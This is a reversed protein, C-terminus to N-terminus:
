SNAREAIAQVRVSCSRLAAAHADSYNSIYAARERLEQAIALLELVLGSPISVEHDTTRARRESQARTAWENKRVTSLGTENIDM